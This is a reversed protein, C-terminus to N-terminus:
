HRIEDFKVFDHVKTAHFLVSKLPWCYFYPELTWVKSWIKSFTIYYACFNSWSICQISYLFYCFIMFNGCQSRSKTFKVFNRWFGCKWCFPVKKKLFIVHKVTDLANTPWPRFSYGLRLFNILDPNRVGFDFSIDYKM